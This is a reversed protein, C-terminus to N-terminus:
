YNTAATSYNALLVNPSTKKKSVDVLSQMHIKKNPM